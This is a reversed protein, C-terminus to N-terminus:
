AYVKTNLIGDSFLLVIFNFLPMLSNKFRYARWRSNRSVDAYSVLRLVRACLLFAFALFVITHQVSQPISIGQIHKGINFLCQAQPVSACHMSVSPTMMDMDSAMSMGPCAAIVSLAVFASLIFTVCIKKTTRIRSIM